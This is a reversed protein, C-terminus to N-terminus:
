FRGSSGGGGVGRSSAVSEPRRSCLRPAWEVGGHRRGGQSLGTEVCCAAHHPLAAPGEVLLSMAEQAGGEGQPVVRAEGDKAPHGPGLCGESWGEGHGPPLRQESLLSRLVLHVVGVTDDVSRGLTRMLQEVDRHLHRELFERPDEM